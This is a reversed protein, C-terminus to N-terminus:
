GSESVSSSLFYLDKTKHHEEQKWHKLQLIPENDDSIFIVSNRVNQSNFTAQLEVTLTTSVVITISSVEDYTLQYEQLIGLPCRDPKWANLPICIEVVHAFGANNELAFWEESSTPYKSFIVTIPIPRTVNEQPQPHAETRATTTVSRVEKSVYYDKTWDCQGLKKAHHRPINNVIIADPQHQEVMQRIKDIQPNFNPRVTSWDVIYFSFDSQQQLM